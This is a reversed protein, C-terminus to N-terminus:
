EARRTVANWAPTLLYRGLSGAIVSGLIIGLTGFLVPAYEFSSGVTTAGALAGSAAGFMASSMCMGDGHPIARSTDNTYHSLQATAM